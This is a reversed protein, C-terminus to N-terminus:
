NADHQEKHKKFREFDEPSNISLPVDEMEVGFINYGHELWTLQELSEAKSLESVPLNGLARLTSSHFAYIGCHEMAGAMDSRSFWHCRQGKGVVVKVLNPQGLRYNTSCWLTWIPITSRWVM